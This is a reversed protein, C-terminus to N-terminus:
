CVAGSDQEHLFVVDSLLFYHVDTLAVSGMFDQAPMTVLYSMSQTGRRFEVRQPLLSTQELCPSPGRHFKKSCSIFGSQNVGRSCSFHDM